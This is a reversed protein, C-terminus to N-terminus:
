WSRQRACRYIPAFCRKRRTLLLSTDVAIESRTRWAVTEGFRWPERRAYGTKGEAMVNPGTHQLILKGQVDAVWYEAPGAAAYDELKEGLDDALTSDAAEVILRVASAPIPGGDSADGAGSDWVTIDPM